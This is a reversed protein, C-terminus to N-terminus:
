DTGRANVVQGLTALRQNILSNVRPVAQAAQGSTLQETLRYTLMRLSGSDNIAKAKGVSNEAVFSSLLISFIALVTITGIALGVRLALSERWPTTLVTM